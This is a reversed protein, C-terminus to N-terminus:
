RDQKQLQFSKKLYRLNLDNGVIDICQKTVRTENM